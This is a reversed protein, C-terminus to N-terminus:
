YILLVIATCRRKSDQHMEKGDESFCRNPLKLLGRRRCRRSRWCVFSKILLVIATIFRQVNRQRGRCFLLTFHGLEAEDESRPRRRSIKRIEMEFQVCAIFASLSRYNEFYQVNGRVCVVLQLHQRTKAFRITINWFRDVWVSNARKRNHDRSMGFIPTTRFMQLFRSDFLCPLSQHESSKLLWFFSTKLNGLCCVAFSKYNLKEGRLSFLFM